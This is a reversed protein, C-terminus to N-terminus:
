ICLESDVWDDEKRRRTQSHQITCQCHEMRKIGFFCLPWGKVEQMNASQALSFSVEPVTKIYIYIKWNEKTPRVNYKRGLYEVGGDGTIYITYGHVATNLKLWTHCKRVKRENEKRKKEKTNARTSFNHQNHKQNDYGTIELGARPFGGYIGSKVWGSHLM